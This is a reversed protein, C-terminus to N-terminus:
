FLSLEKEALEERVMDCYEPVIDMGISHRLMHRAAILTTGSGM